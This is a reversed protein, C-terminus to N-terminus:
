NAEQKTLKKAMDGFGGSMVSFARYVFHVHVIYSYPPAFLRRPATKARFLRGTVERVEWQFQRCPVPM